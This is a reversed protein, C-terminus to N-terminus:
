DNQPIFNTNPKLLNLKRHIKASLETKEDLEHKKAAENVEKIYAQFKENDAWNFGERNFSNELIVNATLIVDKSLNENNLKLTPRMCHEIFHGVTDLIKEESLTNGFRNVYRMVGYFYLEKEVITGNLYFQKWARVPDSAVLAFLYREKLSYQPKQWPNHKSPIFSYEGKHHDKLSILIDYFEKHEMDTVLSLIKEESKSGKDNSRVELIHKSYYELGLAVVPTWETIQLGIRKIDVQDVALIVSSVTASFNQEWIERNNKLAIISSKLEKAIEPKRSKFHDTTKLEDWTQFEFKKLELIEQARLQGLLGIIIFINTLILTKMM